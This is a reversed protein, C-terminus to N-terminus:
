QTVGEFMVIPMTAPGNASWMLPGYSYFSPGSVSPQQLVSDGINVNRPHPDGLAWMLAAVDPYNRAITEIPSDNFFSVMQNKVELPNNKCEFVQCGKARNGGNYSSDCPKYGDNDLLCIGVNRSNLVVLGNNSCNEPKKSISTRIERQVHRYQVQHLQHKIQGETRM